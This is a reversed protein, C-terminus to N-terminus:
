EHRGWYRKSPGLYPDWALDFECNHPSLAFMPAIQKDEYGALGCGVRTVQFTSPSVHAYLLFQRVYLEIVPLPLTQVDCDKTPIAYCGWAYGAGLGYPFGRRAAELAAGGGHRGALNSGFVFVSTTM